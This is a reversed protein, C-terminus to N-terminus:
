IIASAIEDVIIKAINIKLDRELKKEGDSTIIVVENYDSNFAIDSRSIDNAIIMDLGKTKLKNKARKLMDESEAAFGVVFRNEKIKALGAVIDDTPIFEITISGDKRHIKTSSEKKAKFDAVAATMVLLDCSPFKSDLITKLDDASKFKIIEDVGPDPLDVSSILTVNVGRKKLQEAIAYGMKGSSRNSIVRVPDIPEESGGATVIAHINIMDRSENLAEIVIDHIAEISALRGERKEGCALEGTEPDVIIVGRKKLTELNQRTAPHNYMRFNMAPAIILPKQDGGAFTLAALSVPDDAIGSAMKAIINATAPVVLMLDALKALEVHEVNRQMDNDFIDVIAKNSALCSITLPTIFETASKTMIPHVRIGSKKFLRILDCAKYAAIGGTIGVIINRTVSM